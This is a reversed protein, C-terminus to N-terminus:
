RCCPRGVAITLANAFSIRLHRLRIYHDHVKSTVRPRHSRQQENKKTFATTFMSALQNTITQHIGFRIIEYGLPLGGGRM